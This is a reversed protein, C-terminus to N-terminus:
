HMAVVVVTFCVKMRLDRTLIYHCFGYYHCKVNRLNYLERKGPLTTHLTPSHVHRRWKIDMRGEVRQFVKCKIVSSLAKTHLQVWLSVASVSTHEDTWKGNEIWYVHFQNWPDRPVDESVPLVHPKSYTLVLM